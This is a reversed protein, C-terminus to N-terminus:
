KVPLPCWDRVRENPIGWHDFGGIYGDPEFQAEIDSFSGYTNISWGLEKMKAHYAAQAAIVESRMKKLHMM